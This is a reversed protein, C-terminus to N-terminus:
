AAGGCVATTHLRWQRTDGRRREVAFQPLVCAGSTLTAEAAAAVAKVFVIPLLGFDVFGVLNAAAEQLASDRDVLVAAVIVLLWNDLM